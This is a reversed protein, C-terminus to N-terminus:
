EVTQARSVQIASVSAMLVAAMVMVHQFRVSIKEYKVSKERGVKIVNVIVVFTCETAM